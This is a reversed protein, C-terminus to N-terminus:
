DSFNESIINEITSMEDVTLQSYILLPVFSGM